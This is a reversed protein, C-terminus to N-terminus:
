HPHIRPSGTSPDPDFRTLMLEESVTVVISRSNSNISASNAIPAITDVFIDRGAPSVSPNGLNDTAIATLTM